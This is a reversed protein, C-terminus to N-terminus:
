NKVWGRLLNILKNLNARLMTLEEAISARIQDVTQPTVFSASESIVSNGITKTASITAATNSDVIPTVETNPGFSVATSAITATLTQEEVVEVRVVPSPVAETGQTFVQKESDYKVPNEPTGMNGGQSLGTVPNPARQLVISCGPCPTDSPMVGGWSGGPGCVSATCVIINTVVGSSNVVAYTGTPESAKASTVTFSTLVLTILLINTIKKM